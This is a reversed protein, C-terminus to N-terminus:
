LNLTRKDVALAAEKVAESLTPHSHCTRAVDEASAGFNIATILEQILDGARPGVIHGGLIRDTKADALIKVFGQTNALARARGNALFPFSGKKYDVGRKQLEAETEGVSAVEPETYVIYGIARYNVHGAGSVIHEVCAVAEEEAKHALMPGVIVDGVAFIGPTKTAFHDGVEIRGRADTALGVAALELGDTNPLRGVALLVKDCDISAGGEVEVTCGKNKGKRKAGLVKTNCRIELGQKAFIKGAGVALEEDMTSLIRPAYELVTVKAGLRRWVSGLELGIAGAGIVVLHKPVEAFALAETSTVVDQGDVEVGKLGAEKSGTAVLVKAARVTQAGAGEGIAVDFAGAQGGVFRAQGRLHAIKNKKFLGAVGGTLGSVVADKRQHMKALDLTVGAVDIGHQGLHGKAEEFRESSELLAKSPICGIRLCTGGLADEREACAVRLGLQSARIAATYGAPGAGIVLLDYTESSPAM